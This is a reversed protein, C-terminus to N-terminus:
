NKQIKNKFKKIFIYCLIFIAIIGVGIGFGFVISCFEFVDSFVCIFEALYNSIYLIAGFIIFIIVILCGFALYKLNNKHKNILKIKCM